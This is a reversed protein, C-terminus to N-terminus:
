RPSLLLLLRAKEGWCRRAPTCHHRDDRAAAARCELPSRDAPEESLCKRIPLQYALVSSAEHLATAKIM